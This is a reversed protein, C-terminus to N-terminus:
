AIGLNLVIEKPDHRFLDFMYVFVSLGLIGYVISPVGALNALNIQIIRTLRSQTAYEELYVAGGIGIPISFVTTLLVLWFSGWIGGLIGASKPDYSDYHTLFNWNLGSAGEWLISGLLIFLMAMSFWTSLFCIASFIKGKRHRAALKSDFLQNSDTM